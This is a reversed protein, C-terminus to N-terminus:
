WENGVGRRLYEFQLQFNLLRNDRRNRWGVPQRAFRRPPMLRAAPARLAQELSLPAAPPQRPQHAPPRLRPRDPLQEWRPRLQPLRVNAVCARRLTLGAFREATTTGTLRITRVFTGRTVRTTRVPSGSNKEKADSRFVLVSAAALVVLLSLGLWVTRRRDM